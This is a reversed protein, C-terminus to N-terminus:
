HTSYSSSVLTGNSGNWVNQLSFGSGSTPSPLQGSFFTNHFAFVPNFSGAPSSISGFVVGSGSTNVQGGNFLAGVLWYGSFV